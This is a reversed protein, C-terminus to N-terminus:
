LRIRSVVGAHDSPWLGSGTRSGQTDGIVRTAMARVGRVLVYDIRTDLQSEDNAVDAAQCCTAGPRPSRWADTFGASTLLNYPGSGPTTNLDGVLVVPLTTNLATALLESTQAMRIVDPGWAETHTNVFRLTEGALTVDISTWGRLAIGGGFLAPLPLGVSYNGAMPNATEMDQRALIVDADTYRVDHGLVTPVEGDFNTVQAVVDYHLGREALADLLMALYDFEVHEAPSAPGDAPVDTRWLAVEQLGVLDPNTSQIERALADAREAFDTALVQQWTQAARTVLEGVSTSSLVPALDAGLYVNRSLVTLQPSTTAAAAPTLPVLLIAATLALSTLRRGLTTPM